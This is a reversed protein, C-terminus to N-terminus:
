HRKIFSSLFIALQKFNSLVGGFTLAAFPHKTLRRLINELLYKKAGIYHTNQAVVLGDSAGQRILSLKEELPLGSRSVLMWYSLLWRWKVWHALEQTKRVPRKGIFADLAANNIQRYEPVISSRRFVNTGRNVLYSYTIDPIICLRRCHALYSFAFLLDEGFWVDDRFRLKHRRILDARFLKNWLNYLTGDQGISTLTFDVIDEDVTAPQPSIPTVSQPTLRRIQWGSVLLDAGTSDIARIITHLAGPLITDDSDYFQIYQGRARALGLNRASSPGGNEKSYIRVRRDKTAYRKMLALSDDTSGDDVLILEFDRFEEHLIATVIGDLYEAANYVPIIISLTPAKMYELTDTALTFCLAM